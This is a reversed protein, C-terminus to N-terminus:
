VIGALRALLVHAPSTILARLTQARDDWRKVATADGRMRAAEARARLALIGNAQADHLPLADDVYVEPDVGDRAVEHLVYIVAPLVARDLSVLSSMRFRAKRRVAEDALALAFWDRPLEAGEYYDPTAAKTVVKSEGAALAAATEVWGIQRHMTAVADDGLAGALRHQRLQAEAEATMSGARRAAAVAEDARGEALELMALFLEADVKGRGAPIQLAVDLTARAGARDGVHFLYAAVFLATEGARDAEPVHAICRQLGERDFADTHGAAAELWLVTSANTLAGIPDRRAALVADDYRWREIEADRMPRVKLKRREIAARMLELKTAAAEHRKADVVIPYATFLGGTAPGEYNWPTTARGITLTLRSTTAIVDEPLPADTGALWDAFSPNIAEQRYVDVLRAPLLALGSGRADPGVVLEAARVVARSSDDVEEATGGCAVVALAAETYPHDIKARYGEDAAALAALGAEREGVLCLWAGRQLDHEHGYEDSPDLKAIQTAAAVDGRGIAARLARAAGFGDDALAAHKTTGARDGRGAISAFAWQTTRRDAPFGPQSMWEVLEDGASAQMQPDLLVEAALELRTDLEDARWELESTRAEDRTAPVRAAWALEARFEGACDLSSGPVDDYNRNSCDVHAKRARELSWEGLQPLGFVVALASGAIALSGVVLFLIRRRPRPSPEVVTSGESSTPLDDVSDQLDETSV